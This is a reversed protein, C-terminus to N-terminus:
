FLSHILCSTPNQDTCPCSTQCSSGTFNIFFHTLQNFIMRFHFYFESFLNGMFPVRFSNLNLLASTMSETLHSRQHPNLGHPQKIRFYFHFVTFLNEVSGNFLSLYDTMQQILLVAHFIRGLFLNRKIFFLGSQHQFVTSMNIRFVHLFVDGNSAVFRQFLYQKGHSLFLHDLNDAVGIQPSSAASAKCGSVFPLLHCPLFLRNMVHDTVSVFAIRSGEHISANHFTIRM